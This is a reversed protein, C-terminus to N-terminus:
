HFRKFLVIIKECTVKKDNLSTETANLTEDECALALEGFLRKQM